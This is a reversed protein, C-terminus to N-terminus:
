QLAISVTNSRIAQVLYLDASSGAPVDLPITVNIQWLGAFGPALGSFQVAGSKGGVIVSPAAATTAPPQAPAAAGDDVAPTTAGQGSAYIVVTQGRQAPNTSSILRGSADAIAFIGPATPILTATGRAVTQSAVRVEVTTQGLSTTGRPIQVNIQQPSAYLLPAATGGVLVETEGLRRPLPLAAAANTASATFPGFVSVLSGPAIPVGATFGAANVTVADGRPEMMWVQTTAPLATRTLTVTAPQFVLDPFPNSIAPFGALQAPGGIATRYHMLIAVKPGVQSILNATGAADITFFGGAPVFIVDTGRLDALQADSLRDQGYDGFHAFTIGGQTWRVITNSGRQSGSTNDHFGPILIFPLTAATAETRATTTRGDVLTFGAAVGASNNHDTHNHSITVVDARLSPLTYGVSAVPPDLVVTGTGDANQVVFCAQGIWTIRVSPAQAAALSGLLLTWAILRGM